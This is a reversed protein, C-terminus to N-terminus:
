ADKLRLLQGSTTQICEVLSAGIIDHIHYAIGLKAAKPLKRSELERQLIEHYKCRRIMTLIAKRGRLLNKTFLGAEPIALWWSGVDRVTLVGANVLQTIEEDIFGHSDMVDQKNISVGQFNVIVSKMFRDIVAKAPLSETHRQVHEQYDETLVICLDDGNVDLKFLRVEGQKRLDGLEKDAVTKSKMVSYLQHQLLIPPLRVGFKDIPFQNRLYLVAAKTDSPLPTSDFHDGELANTASEEKRGACVRKRARYVAPILSRKGSM